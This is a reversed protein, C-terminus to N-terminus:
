KICDCNREIRHNGNACDLPNQFEASDIDFAVRKGASATYSFEDLDFISEIRGAVVVRDNRPLSDSTMESMYTSIPQTRLCIRKGSRLSGSGLAWDYYECENRM